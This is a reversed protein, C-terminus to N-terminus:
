DAGRRRRTWFYVPVGSSVVLIGLLSPAPARLLAEFGGTLVLVGSWVAQIGISFAPTEAEGVRGFVGPLYRDRAMAYYVRPGTLVMASVSSALVPLILPTIFASGADGWLLRAARDGTAETAVLGDMGLVRVYLLNLALYLGM